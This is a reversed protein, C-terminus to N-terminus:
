VGALVVDRGGAGALLLCDDEVRGLRRGTVVDVLALKRMEDDHVRVNNGAGWAAVGVVAVRADESHRPRRHQRLARPGSGAGDGLDGDRRAGRRVAVGNLDGATNDDTGRVRRDELDALSTGRALDGDLDGAGVLPRNVVEKNQM